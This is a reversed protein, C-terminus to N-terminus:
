AAVGEAFRRRIDVWADLDNNFGADWAEAMLTGDVMPNKFTAGYEKAMRRCEMGVRVAHMLDDM